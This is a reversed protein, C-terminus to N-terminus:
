AIIHKLRMPRGEAALLAAAQNAQTAPPADHLKGIAKLVEELVDLLRQSRLHQSRIQAIQAQTARQYAVLEDPPLALIQQLQPAAAPKRRRAHGAGNARPPASPSRRPM